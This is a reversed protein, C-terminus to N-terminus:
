GKIKLSGPCNNSLKEAYAKVTRNVSDGFFQSRWLDSNGCGCSCLRDYEITQPQGSVVAKKISGLLRRKTDADFMPSDAVTLGVHDMTYGEASLVVGDETLTAYTWGNRDAIEAAGDLVPAAINNTDRTAVVTQKRPCNSSIEGVYGSTSRTAKDGFMLSWWKETEGCGCACYREYEFALPGGSEIARRVAGMIADKTKQTIDTADQIKMGTIDVPYGTASLATGDEAVVAHVWNNNPRIGSLASLVIPGELKYDEPRPIDTDPRSDTNNSKKIRARLKDIRDLLKEIGM